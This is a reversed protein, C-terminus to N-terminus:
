FFFTVKSKPTFLVHRGEKVNSLYFTKKYFETLSFPSNVGEEVRFVRPRFITLFPRNKCFESKRVSLLTHEFHVQKSTKEKTCSSEKSSTTECSVRLLVM